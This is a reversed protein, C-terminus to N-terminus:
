PRLREREALQRVREMTGRQRALHQARRGRSAVLERVQGSAEEAPEPASALLRALARVTTGEYAAVAPVDRNLTEKLRAAVEVAVLSDGGLEFFSDAAGVRDVGLVERWIAAVATELGEEPEVYATQLDPRAHLPRRSAADAPVAGRREAAAPEVWYREREFPYTPLPVRRRRERAFLRRGDFALGALWLRGCASLLAGGEPVGERVDALSAVAPPAGPTRRVQSALTRGPGVELLLRGPARALEAIGAAFRVPERLQRGWYAPDTAEGPEIWTGTVNSLFPIAPPRREVRRVEAEFRAAAPEMLPSHFAHSTALRRAPIRRAVLRAALEAVAAETGALVSSEPGNEVALALESGQALAAAEVPALAVALMAGPPMEQMLRGRAAVLSLAGEFSFVGALCAASLEGISHGLLAEPEIGWEMWLRALAVEVTFLAPQAIRTEALAREAEALREPRPFLVQRLDLGLERALGEAARDV